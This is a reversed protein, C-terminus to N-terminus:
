PVFRVHELCYAAINTGNILMTKAPMQSVFEGLTALTGVDSKFCYYGMQLVGGAGVGAAARARARQLAPWIQHADVQTLESEYPDDPGTTPEASPEATPEATPNPSEAPETSPEPTEDPAPSGDPSPAPSSETTDPGPTSESPAESPPAESSVTENPDIETAFASLPMAGFCLVVALLLALSRKMIKQM